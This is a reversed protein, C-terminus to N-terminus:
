LVERLAAYLEDRKPDDRKYGCYYMWKGLGQTKALDNIKLEKLQPMFSYIVEMAKENDVFRGLSSVHNVEESEPPDFYGRGFILCELLEGKKRRNDGYPTVIIEEEQGDPLSRYFRDMLWECCRSHWDYLDCIREGYKNREGEARNLTGHEGTNFIHMELPIDHDSYAKALRLSHNVSVVNDTHTHAIFAPPTNEDVRAAPNTNVEELEGNMVTPMMINAAPYILFVANPRNERGQAGSLEQVMPDNWYTAANAAMSGGASFGGIAIANPDLCWEEAHERLTMIALSAEVETQPWMCRFGVSYYLVFAHFGRAYFAAAIPSGEDPSHFEYAGGPCVIVAPRSKGDRRPEHIMCELTCETNTGLQISKTIM